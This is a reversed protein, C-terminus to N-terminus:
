KDAVFSLCQFISVDMMVRGVDHIGINLPTGNRQSVTCSKYFKQGEESTHCNNWGKCELEDEQSIMDLVILQM